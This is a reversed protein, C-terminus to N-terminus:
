KNELVYIQDTFNCAKTITKEKTIQNEIYNGYVINNTQKLQINEIQFELNNKAHEGFQQFILQKLKKGDVKMENAQFYRM